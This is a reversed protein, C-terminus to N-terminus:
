GLQIHLKSISMVLILPVKFVVVENWTVDHLCLHSVHKLHQWHRSDHHKKIKLNTYNKNLESVSMVLIQSVKLVVVENWSMVHLSIHSVHQWHRSNHHKKM